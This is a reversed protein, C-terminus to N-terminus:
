DAPVEPVPNAPAADIDITQKDDGLHISISFRERAESPRNANGTVRAMEAFLKALAVLGVLEEKKDSLRAAMAPMADELAIAAEMALRKETSQPSNWELVAARLAQKFFENKELLAYQQQDIGHKKLIDPEDYMNVALDRVLEAVKHITWGKPMTAPPTPPAPPAPPPAPEPPTVTATVALGTEVPDESM